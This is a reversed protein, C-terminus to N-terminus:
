AGTVNHPSGLLDYESMSNPGNLLHKILCSLKKNLQIVTVIYCYRYPLFRGMLTLCKRGFKHIDM